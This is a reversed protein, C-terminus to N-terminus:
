DLYEPPLPRNDKVHCADLAPELAEGIQLPYRPTEIVQLLLEEPSLAEMRVLSRVADCWLWAIRM